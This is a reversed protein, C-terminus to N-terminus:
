CEIKTLMALRKQLLIVGVKLQQEDNFVFLILSDSRNAVEHM